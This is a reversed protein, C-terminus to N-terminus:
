KSAKYSYFKYTIGTGNTEVEDISIDLSSETERLCSLWEKCLVWVFDGIRSVKLIFKIYFFDKDRIIGIDSVTEPYDSLSDVIHDLTENVYKKDDANNIKEVKLKIRKTM